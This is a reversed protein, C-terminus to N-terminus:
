GRKWSAFHSHGCPHRLGDPSQRTHGGTSFGSIAIQSNAAQDLDDSEQLDALTQVHFTGLAIRPELEEIELRRHVRRPTM